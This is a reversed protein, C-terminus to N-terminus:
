SRSGSALMAGLDLAYITVSGARFTVTLGPLGDLDRLGPALSFGQDGAWNEPSGASGIGPARGDVYVWRVNLDLLQQRVAADVPYTNFSKLLQYSYPVGLIGLPYVNVIPVGREVYLYTSGDNPSNLVREGPKVRDALWAIAQQDDEGVRVFEPTRYRTAISQENLEAYRTAPAVAYGAFAAVALAVATPIAPIPLRRRALEALRNASLVVGLGALVAALLSLHSWVRLMANYYFATIPAEFGSGPSLWAGMVIASWGAWAAVPGLGRRLAIV